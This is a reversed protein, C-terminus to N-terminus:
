AIKLLMDSGQYIQQSGKLMVEMRSVLKNAYALNSELTDLDTNMKKLSHKNGLATIIHTKSNNLYYIINEFFNDRDKLLSDCTDIIDYVEPECDGNIGPKSLSVVQMLKAYTLGVKRFINQMEEDVSRIAFCNSYKEYYSFAWKANHINAKYKNYIYTAEM